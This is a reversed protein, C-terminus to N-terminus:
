STTPTRRRLRGSRRASRPSFTTPVSMPCGPGPLGAPIAGVLQVGRDELDFVWVAVTAGLMGLLAIPARPFELAALLM